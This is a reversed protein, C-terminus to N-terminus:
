QQDPLKGEAFDDMKSRILRIAMLILQVLCLIFLVWRLTILLSAAGVASSAPDSLAVDLTFGGALFVGAYALPLAGMVAKLAGTYRSAKVMNWWTFAFILPLILGASRHLTQYGQLGEAGLGTAVAHAHETDFGMMLEPATAGAAATVGPLLMLHYYLMFLATVVFAVFLFVYSSGAEPTAALESRSYDTVVRPGPKGQLRASPAPTRPKVEAQTNSGYLRKKQGKSLGM